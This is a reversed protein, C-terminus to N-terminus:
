TEQIQRGQGARWAAAPAKPRSGIAKPQGKGEVPPPATQAQQTAMMAQLNVEAEHCAAIAQECAEWAKQRDLREAVLVLQAALLNRQAVHGEAHAPQLASRRTMPWVSM